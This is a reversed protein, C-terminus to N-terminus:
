INRYSIRDLLSYQGELSPMETVKKMFENLECCFVFGNKPKKYSDNEFLNSMWSLQACKSQCPANKILDAEEADINNSILFGVAKESETTVVIWLYEPVPYKQEDPHLYLYTKIGDGREGNLLSLISHTGLYLDFNKISLGMIDKILLDYNPLYDFGNSIVYNWGLKLASYLQGNQLIPLDILHRTALFPVKKTSLLKELRNNLEDMRSALLFNIKYLSDPHNQALYNVGETELVASRESSNGDFKTHVFITRGNNESYCAEGIVQSKRKVPNEYGFEVSTAENPCGSISKLVEEVSRVECGLDLTWSKEVGDVEFINGSKCKATLWKTSNLRPTKFYNPACSLIVDQNSPITISRANEEFNDTPLLEGDVTFILPAFFQFRPLSLVCDANTYGIALGVFLTWMLM